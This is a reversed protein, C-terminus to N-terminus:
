YPDDDYPNPTGRRVWPSTTGGIGSWPPTRGGIGWPPPTGDSSWYPNPTRQSPPAAVFTIGLGRAISKVEKWAEFHEDAAEKVEFSRLHGGQSSRQRIFTSAETPTCDQWDIRIEILGAPLSTPSIEVTNQYFHLVKLNQSLPPIVVPDADRRTFGEHCGVIELQELSEAHSKLIHDLLPYVMACRRFKVIRLTNPLAPFMANVPLEYVKVFALEHLSQFSTYRTRFADSFQPRIHKCMISELLPWSTLAAEWEQETFTGNSGRFILHKLHKLTLLPKSDVEKPKNYLRLTSINPMLYISNIITWDAIFLRKVLPGIAPNEELTRMFLRNRTPNCELASFDRYIMRRCPELWKTSVSALTCLLGLRVKDDPDNEPNFYARYVEPPRFCELICIIIDLPITPMHMRRGDSIAVHLKKTQTAPRTGGGLAASLDREAQRLTQSRGPVSPMPLAM